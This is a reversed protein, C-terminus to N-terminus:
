IVSTGKDEFTTWKLCFLLSVNWTSFNKRISCYIASNYYILVLRNTKWSIRCCTFVNQIIIRMRLIVNIKTVNIQMFLYIGRATSDLCGDSRYHMEGRPLKGLRSIDYKEKM